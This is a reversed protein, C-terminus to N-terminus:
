TDLGLKETNTMDDANMPPWNEEFQAEFGARSLAITAM